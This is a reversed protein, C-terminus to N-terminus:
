NVGGSEKLAAAFADAVAKHGATSPHFGDTGILEREKDPGAARAELGRAHLDVLVAREQSVVRGIAANFADVTANVVDPAPVFLRAAGNVFCPPSGAPPDPRCALYAPLHDLPPTNAVLVKTEGNRRLQHVLTALQQEYTAVPVLGLIDNVNLWVTVLTPAQQVADPVEKALADSVKAGPIGLNVFVARRPLASRFLVEPWADRLPDDSGFGVSESAGVAVYKVPPGPTDGAVPKAAPPRSPSCGGVLLILSVLVGIAIAV